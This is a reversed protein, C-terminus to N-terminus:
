YKGQDRLDAMVLSNEIERVLGEEDRVLNLGGWGFEKEMVLNMLFLSSACKVKYRQLNKKVNSQNSWTTMFTNYLYFIM